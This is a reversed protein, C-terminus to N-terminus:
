VMLLKTCLKLFRDLGYFGNHMIHLNKGGNSLNMRKVILANNANANHNQSNDFIFVGVCDPHLKNLREVAKDFQAVLNENKWWGDSNKGPQLSLNGDCECLFASVM